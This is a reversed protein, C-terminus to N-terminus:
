VHESMIKITVFQAPILNNSPLLDRSFSDFSDLLYM